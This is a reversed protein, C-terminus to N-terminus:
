FGFEARRTPCCIVGFPNDPSAKTDRNEDCWYSGSEHVFGLYRSRRLPKGCHACTM